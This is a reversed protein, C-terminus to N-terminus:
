IFTISRIQMGFKTEFFSFLGIYTEIIKTRVIKKTTDNCKFFITVSGPSKEEKKKELALM